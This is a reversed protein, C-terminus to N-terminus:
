SSCHIAAFFPSGFDSRPQVPIYQNLDCFDDCNNMKSDYFPYEDYINGELILCSKISSFCDLERIWKPIKM